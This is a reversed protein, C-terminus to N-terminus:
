EHEITRLLVRNGNLEVYIREAKRPSHKWDEATVPEARIIM